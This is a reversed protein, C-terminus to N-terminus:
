HPKPKHGDVQVPSGDLLMLKSTGANGCHVYPLTLVVYCLVLHGVKSAISCQPKEM